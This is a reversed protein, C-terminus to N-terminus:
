FSTNIQLNFVNAKAHETASVDSVITGLARQQSVEATSGTIYAYAMDITTTESLAYTAGVTYWHRDTDPISLSRHETTVAGNDFAYGARLTVQDNYLYTAGLSFRYSDDFDEEKLLLEDGSDLEANLKDFVSWQTFVVSAQVSLQEDLKQNVALETISALDLSLSGDQNYLEAVAPIIAGLDSEIEGELDLKTESRYSLALTTTDTAQWFAGVNWGFGIDDGSMKIVTLNGLAESGLLPGFIQPISTGIEAEAYTVSVGLGLSLTDSVKYAIAPNITFSMVEAEDAFHLANFSDSYDTALGYNTFAGIGWSMADNVPATYFISPVFAATAIDEEGIDYTNAFVSEGSQNFVTVDMDGRIDISPNIYSIQASFQPTDFAIIAAPNTALITANEPMAAQGAMARGFGNASHENVQFGAAFVSSSATSALAVCIAARLSFHQKM